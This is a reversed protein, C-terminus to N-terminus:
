ERDATTTVGDPTVPSEARSGAHRDDWRPVARLAPPNPIRKMFSSRELAARMLSTEVTLEDICHDNSALGQVIFDLRRDHRTLREDISDFRQDISDLRQDNAALRRDIADLRQLVATQFEANTM